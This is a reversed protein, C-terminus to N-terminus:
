YIKKHNAGVKEIAEKVEQNLSVDKQFTNSQNAEKLDKEHERIIDEVLSIRQVNNLWARHSKNLESNNEVFM